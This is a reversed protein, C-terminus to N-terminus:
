FFVLSLTLPLSSLPFKWQWTLDAWISLSCTPGHNEKLTKKIERPICYIIKSFYRQNMAPGLLLKHTLYTTNDM